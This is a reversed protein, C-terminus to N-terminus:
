EMEKLNHLLEVAIPLPPPPDGAGKTTVKPIDVLFLSGLTVLM